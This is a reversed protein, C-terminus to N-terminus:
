VEVAEGASFFYLITQKVPMEYIRSLAGAYAHLQPAYREAKQTLDGDIFDTKFDLIVIGDPEQWFCDVVGQLMVQEGAAAPDFAAADTLISFKFERRLKQATLIRKGLASTFLRLIRGTDVAAAQAPTLFKQTQLRELEQRIGEETTCAAYRVFQMFLHTANGRERGTLPADQRLQLTRRPRKTRAQPAEEAAEEDLLRGKLQTATLKSPLATAAKHAYRFETCALAQQMDFPAAEARQPQERGREAAQPAEVDQMTVFWPSEQVSSCACPGSRAFLAGSETRCLATMLIWDDPRRASASVCSLLPVSLLPVLNQLRKDYHAACSTMILREKARTMAVYLVRMEESVTQQTKRRMIAMRALSPYFSRSQLDVVNGGLLLTDDTLVASQNDQLNMKRSLDSLIVIPFELGKSKHISMIRVANTQAAAEQAPLQAGRAILEDLLRVLESLSHVDTQASATVFSLFAAINRSRGEGDEMSSFVTELGSSQVITDLLEPLAARRSERRMAHLWDTFARLKQTPTECACICGYFDSTQDQARLLALEEPSFGFVPSAMAAILPIDRHPNDILQLMQLLIEVEATQLLDTGSGTECAIGRQQLAAQYVGASMGPSRMLIVIDSARAPRLAGNETVMTSGDLMKEIRSAVFEAEAETKGGSAEGSETLNLCHLEVKPGDAQPYPLGPVLAEEATYDLEGAEKKMVLSFVDNAASLVEARSRFNQSLLLKRPGTDSISQLMPYTNYKQLFIAPDALRFRYISQKVDGVMFLNAGDRSVAQFICEQVANSDQYEDILIERYAEAISRAAATPKGSGRQTLLRIMRHELDSFDLLHRRLKEQTFRADFDRLLSLLGRLAPLTQRLDQVVRASDAYFCSQIEKISDWAQKRLAKIRALADPDGAGRMTGFSTLKGAVCADWTQMAQQARVDELNKQLVPRCKAELKEDGVCLALAQTLLAQVGQLVRLREQMFYGGWATKEAQTEEPLDYAQLCSQMWAAPDVQCRMITYSEEALVLLRRDDRGYGLTDIMAAFDPEQQLDAYREALTDRLVQARLAAAQQEDAVRFDAPLEAEVAYQRLITQCFAHVTSIQALYVRTMQRQLHRNDPEEALREAIRAAIKGRLESAAAKTYTIMLFEDIDAPHDPDTLYGMLRDVLVKTKGSGAAASVLLAGGRYSAAAQQQPTARIEAM